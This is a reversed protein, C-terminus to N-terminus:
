STSIAETVWNSKSKRNNKFYFKPNEGLKGSPLLPLFIFPAYKVITGKQRARRSQDNTEILLYFVAATDNQIDM